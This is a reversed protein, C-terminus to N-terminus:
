GKAIETFLNILFVMLILASAAVCVVATIRNKSDLKKTLAIIGFIASLVILALSAYGGILGVPVLAPSDLLLETIIIGVAIKVAIGIILFILSLQVFKQLKM